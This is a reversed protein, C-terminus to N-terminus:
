NYKDIYVKKFYIFIYTIIVVFLYYIINKLFIIFTFQMCNKFILYIILFYIIRLFIIFLIITLLKFLYRKIHSIRLVIFEPSHNYEYIFFSYGFYFTICLQYLFLLLGLFDLKNYAVIGLLAKVQEPNFFSTNITQYILFIDIIILGLYIMLWKFYKKFFLEKLVLLQYKM